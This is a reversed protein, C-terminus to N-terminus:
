AAAATRSRQSPVSAPVEGQRRSTASGTRLRRHGPEACAEAPGEERDTMDRGLDAVRALRLPGSLYLIAEM